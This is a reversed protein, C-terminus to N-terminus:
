KKKYASILESAKAKSIGSEHKVNVLRLYRLQAPTALAESDGATFVRAAFSRSKAKRLTMNFQLARSYHELRRSECRARRREVSGIAKALSGYKVAAVEEVECRKYLKM